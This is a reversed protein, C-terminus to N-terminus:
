PEQVSLSRFGDFVWSGNERIFRWEERETGLKKRSTNDFYTAEVTVLAANGSKVIKELVFDGYYFGHSRFYREYEAQDNNGSDRIKQSLLRWVGKYDQEKHYQMYEQITADLQADNPSNLDACYGLRATMLAVVLAIIALFSIKRM